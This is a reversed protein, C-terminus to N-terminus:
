KKRFVEKFQENIDFEKKAFEFNIGVLVSYLVTLLINYFADEWNSRSLHFTMAFVQFAIAVFLFLNFVHM